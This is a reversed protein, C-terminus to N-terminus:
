FQVRFYSRPAVIAFIIIRRHYLLRTPSLSGWEDIEQVFLARAITVSPFGCDILFCTGGVPNYNSKWNKISTIPGYKRIFLYQSQRTKSDELTTSRSGEASSGRRICSDESCNSTQLHPTQPLVVCSYRALCRDGM